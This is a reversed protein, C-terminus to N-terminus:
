ADYFDADSVGDDPTPRFRKRAGRVYVTPVDNKNTPIPYSAVRGDVLRVFLTHSGKGREPKEQVDFRSLIRRLDRLKLPHDPMLLVANPAGAIYHEEASFRRFTAGANRLLFAASGFRM